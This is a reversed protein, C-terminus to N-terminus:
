ECLAAVAEAHEVCSIDDPTKCGFEKMKNLVPRIKGLNQRNAKLFDKIGSVLPVLENERATKEAKEALAQKQIEEKQAEVKEQEAKTEAVSKGSKSQEALIANTIAAIFEDADLNIEPVIDPFRSGSDVAYGEDRFKIKRAEETVKSRTEEKKTVINKKGTKEKIITRDIYALGLIHLNKKLANFYNQQQDSTLIQYTEGTTVDTVDKNKVHGIVITSIGYKRLTDILNLMLEIAKKEGKGFGGWASNISTTRKDPHGDKNCQYNWLRISEEEALTILQDYTDWVVVRLDKYDTYRNDVIDQIVESLFAENEMEMREREKELDEGFLGTSEEDWATINVHSIGEIADAGREKGFEFFMYGDEGALKECVKQILTTNHTVIFDRTIYLEEGGNLFDELMICKCEEEGFKEISAINKHVQNVVFNAKAISNKHKDSLNLRNFKYQKYADVKISVRYEIENEYSDNSDENTRDYSFVTSIFGLSRALYAIDNALKESYTAYIFRSGVFSGDTNLLGSLLSTRTELTANLYNEPIFKERSGCGLLGLKEISDKFRNGNKSEDDCIRLQYHNDFNKRSIRYGNANAFEVFDDFIDEEANTFTLTTTTFGGDGLMLGLIYPDVLINEDTGFECAESVPISFKPKGCEKMVGRKLLEETTLTKEVCNGHSTYFVNWLHELGCRTSTGDTFKVLYVDKVGQPYIEIVKHPKGDRGIVEDGVEIDGMTKWGNPTLVPESIPQEKGVKPSGLLMINYALPDLKVHNKKGFRAM